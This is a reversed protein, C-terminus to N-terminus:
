RNKIGKNQDIEEAVQELEDFIRESDKRIEQVAAKLSGGRLYIYRKKRYLLGSQILNRIHHNVRSTSIGLDNAIMESSINTESPINNLLDRIIKISIDDIDRGSSLGFSDCIWRIDKDLDKENSKEINILTIQQTM